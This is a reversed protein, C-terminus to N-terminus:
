QPLGEVKKTDSFLYYNPINELEIAVRCFAYDRFNNVYMRRYSDNGESISVTIEVSGQDSINVDMSKTCSTKSNVIASTGVYCRAKVVRPAPKVTGTNNAVDFKLVINGGEVSTSFNNITYYPVVEINKEFDSKLNVYLSDYGLGAGYSDFESFEFPYQNNNPTLWYEGSFLLQQFSGDECVKIATGIDVKGFGKQFVSLLGRDPNGDFLFNQGNYTLNGSLLLSPSDYNDYECSSSIIALIIFSLYIIRKM